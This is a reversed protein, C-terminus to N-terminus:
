IAALPQDEGERFSKIQEVERNVYQMIATKDDTTLEDLTIHNDDPVDSIKPSYLAATAITDLFKKYEPGNNKMLELGMKELDVSDTIKSAAIAQDMITDPLKGMMMLDTMDIDRVIVPLGSPLDIEHLRSARWAALNMAKAKQSQDLGTIQKPM